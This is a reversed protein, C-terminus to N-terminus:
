KRENRNKMIEKVLARWLECLIKCDFENYRELSSKTENDVLPGMPTHKEYLEKAVRISQKGDEIEPPLSSPVYGHKKMAKAIHKLKTTFCSEIIVPGEWFVKHLDRAQAFIHMKDKIQPPFTYKEVAANWAKEEACFYFIRGDRFEDLREQVRTLLEYEGRASLSTSWMCEFHNRDDDDDGRDGYFFYMGVLYISQPAVVWEFDVFVIPWEMKQVKEIDLMDQFKDLVRPHIFLPHRNTQRHFEICTKQFFSVTSGHSPFLEEIECSSLSYFGRGGTAKVWEKRKKLTMYPLLTWEGSEEAINWKLTSLGPPYWEPNYKLNPYHIRHVSTSLAGHTTFDELSLTGLAHITKLMTQLQTMDKGWPFRTSSDGEEKPLLDHFKCPCLTQSPYSFVLFENEWDIDDHLHGLGGGDKKQQITCRLTHTLLTM